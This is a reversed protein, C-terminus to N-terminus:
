VKSLRQVVANYLDEREFKTKKIMMVFNKAFLYKENFINKGKNHYDILYDVMEDFTFDALMQYKKNRSDMIRDMVDKRKSASNERTVGLNFSVYEGSKYKPDNVSVRFLKNESDNVDRVIVTGTLKETMAEIGKLYAEESSGFYKKGYMDPRKKGKNAKSIKARVEPRKSPNKDGAFAGSTMFKLKDDLKNHLIFAYARKCSCNQYILCLLRHFEVHIDYPVKVINWLSKKYEVFMSRPCIHHKECYIDESIEKNSYEKVLQLYENLSKECKIEYKRLINEIDNM